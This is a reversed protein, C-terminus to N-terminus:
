SCILILSCENNGCQNVLLFIQVVGDSQLADLANDRKKRAYKHM